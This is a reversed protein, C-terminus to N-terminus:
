AAAQRSEADCLSTGGVPGRSAVAGRVAGRCGWRRGEGGMLAWITRRVSGLGVAKESGEKTGKWRVNQRNVEKKGVSGGLGGRGGGDSRKLVSVVGYAGYKTYVWCQAEVVNELEDVCGWRVVCVGFSDWGELPV